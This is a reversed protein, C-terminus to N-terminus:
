CFFARGVVALVYVKAAGFNNDETFYSYSGITIFM